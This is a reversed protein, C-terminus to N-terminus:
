RVVDEVPIESRKGSQLLSFIYGSAFTVLSGILVYWQWSIATGLKVGLMVCAGTVMGAFTAGQGVHKTFTGLFFAGLIVGNTFSAIGLVEDVVRSSVNIALLAVAIQVAGWIATLIRSVNLYHREPKRNGTMPMYFDGVSTSAASNLSSSMAAAIVAAMVLGVVGHPLQTVIFHPFIRDTQLRGGLTFNAIEHSAHSTYFVYLMTGITLFFAFQLFIVVGSSLLAARAQRTTSCCLYRQVMFQDTGHTATTLFAGGLVGSWFTYSKTLTLSFDFWRFKGAASGTAVVESWGGPIKDLLLWAAIGAGLLYIGLQIVDIWVVASIGGLYSFIIMALGMVLISLVIITVSPDIAPIISRATDATGPMALVLASLVLGAAFLRFGDALSRTILFLLSALRRVGMGFRQGLLQYVTLLEGRFYMPVFISVVVLRGIMYGIVLQMFAFNGGYAFGPVSIFTVTSTETAVISAAIAWWPVRHGSVFYDKVDKQSRSFWAGLLVTGILYVVIIALDLLRM